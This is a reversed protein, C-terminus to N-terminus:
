SNFLSNAVHKSGAVTIHMHHVEGAGECSLDWAAGYCTRLLHTSCRQFAQTQAAKKLPLCSALLGLFTLVLGPNYEM